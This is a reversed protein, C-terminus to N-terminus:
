RKKNKVILNNYEYIQTGEEGIRYIGIKIYPKKPGYPGDNSKKALPVELHQLFLENNLFYMVSIIKSKKRYDIEARFKYKINPKLYKYKIMKCNEASCKGEPFKHIIKGYKKLGVWSPPAGSNRGDHIQFITSRYSHPGNFVFDTEFVTHGAKLKHTIEQRGSYDYKWVPKKDTPCSGIDGKDLKFIVNDLKFEKKNYNKTPKGNIVLSEKDVIGCSIKWKNYHKWEDSFTLSPNIFILLIILKKM